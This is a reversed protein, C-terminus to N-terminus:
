YNLSVLPDLTRRLSDEGETYCPVQCLIFKDQMEPSRKPSLQLASLALPSSTLQIAISQCLPVYV